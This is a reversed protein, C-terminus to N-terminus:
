VRATAAALDLLREGELFLGALASRVLDFHEEMLDFWDEIRFALTRTELTARASWASSCDGFAAAGCVIQGHRFTWVVDSPSRSAAVQGDVVLYVRERKAGPAHVVENPAFTVVESALALDSLAQVGALRLPLANMLQALRELVGLRGASAPPGSGPSGTWPVVGADLLREELLAVKRASGLVSTRTLEFSDELLEVWADVPVKM